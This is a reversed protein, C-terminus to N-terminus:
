DRTETADVSHVDAGSETMVVVAHGDPAITVGRAPEDTDTEFSALDDGTTLDRIVARGESLWAGRTGDDSISRPRETLAPGIPELRLQGRVLHAHVFRTVGEMRATAFFGEGSAGEAFPRLRRAPPALVRVREGDSTRYLALRSRTDRLVFHRDDLFTVDAGDLVFRRRLSRLDFIHIRDPSQTEGGRREEPAGHVALAVFRGSPSFRISRLTGGRLRAIRRLETGQIDGLRVWLHTNTCPAIGEAPVHVATATVVLSGDPSVAARARGLGPHTTVPADGRFDVIADGSRAVAGDPTFVAHLPPPAAEPCALAGAPMALVALAALVAGALMGGRTMVLSAANVARRM